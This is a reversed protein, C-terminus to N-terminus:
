MNSVLWNKKENGFSAGCELKLKWEDVDALTSATIGVVVVAGKGSDLEVFGGVWVLLGRYERNPQHYMAANFICTIACNCVVRLVFGVVPGVDFRSEVWRVLCLCIFGRGGQMGSVLPYTYMYTHM